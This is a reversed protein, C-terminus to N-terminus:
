CGAGPCRDSQSLMKLLLIGSTRVPVTPSNHDCHYTYLVSVSSSRTLIWFHYRENKKQLYTQLKCFVFTKRLESLSTYVPCHLIQNGENSGLHNRRYSKKLGNVSTFYLYRDPLILFYLTQGLNVSQLSFVPSITDKMGGQPGRKEGAPVM